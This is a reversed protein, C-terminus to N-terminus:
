VSSSLEQSCEEWEKMLTAHMAKRQELEQAQRQTEDASVFNQLATELQAITAEARSIKEELSQVRDEM